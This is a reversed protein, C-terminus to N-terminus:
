AESTSVQAIRNRISTCADDILSIIEEHSERAEKYYEGNPREVYEYDILEERCRERVKSLADYISAPYFPKNREIVDLFANHAEAFSRVRKRMRDEKSEQPDITDMVPRLGTTAHRLAVLQEWAQKYIEYEHEFQVKGVHVTKQVSADLRAKLL